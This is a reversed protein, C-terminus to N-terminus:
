QNYRNRPITGAIHPWKHWPADSPVPRPWTVSGVADMPDNACQQLIQIAIITSSKSLALKMNSVILRSSQERLM